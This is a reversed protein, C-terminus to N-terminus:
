AGSLYSEVIGLKAIPIVEREGNNVFAEGNGDSGGWKSLGKGDGRILQCGSDVSDCDFEM